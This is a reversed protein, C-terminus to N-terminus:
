LLRKLEFMRNVGTEGAITRASTEGFAPGLKYGHGSDGGLIWLNSAEPHRDLIFDSDPTDTYQCVRTEILPRGVMAPFRRKLVGQALEIEHTTVTRDYTDFRDTIDNDGPPTLGVKFGRFASGPVGFPRFPGDHDRDMWTPLKNELWESKDPPSAFFFVVGRHIHIKGTLSPFLRTIWPGCAFAFQDAEIQRGDSLTVSTVKGSSRNEKAVKQQIYTGGEKIFQECVNICGQRAELYGAQPDYLVHDLDETRIQPWRKAADAASIKELTLGAKRYMPTAAETEPTTPKHNFVLLGNQHFVPRGVSKDFENWLEISRLTMDFYIQKDYFARILRTEGGSSSQNNGPGFSDVMTVHFGKRLLWLATWGGFAGAGAVVVKGKDILPRATLSSSWLSTVATLATTGVGLKIAARRTLKTKPIM